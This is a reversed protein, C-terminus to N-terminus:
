CLCRNGQEFTQRAADPQTWFQQTTGGKREWLDNLHTKEAFLYSSVFAVMRPDGGGNDRLDFIIADVNGLFNMAAIATSRCIEPDAFMNFKLYGVNQALHEVKEFGCNMREMQKQRGPDAGPPGDPMREASFRVGLHKDHSVERFHETLMRAFSDGDTVSDYEGSKERARVAEELKKATEPFVYFENLNAVAANIVRGREAADIKFDAASCGLTLVLLGCLRFVM